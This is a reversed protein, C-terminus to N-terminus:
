RALAARLGPPVERRGALEAVLDHAYLPVTQRRSRLQRRLEAIFLGEGPVLNALVVRENFATADTSTPDCAALARVSRDVDLTRRVGCSPSGDVGVIGVVEHGSRRYDAIEAAVQRALRRYCWRTYALFVPTILRRASGRGKRDSGYALLLYPKLVGGWTRQEPCALQCIGVGAGQAADVLEDIAGPRTAGGLYRVNENLLCHSIFVVRGSRRDGLRRRLDNIPHGDVTQGRPSRRGHGAVEFEAALGKDM